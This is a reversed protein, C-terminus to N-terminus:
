EYNEGFKPITVKSNNEIINIVNIRESTFRSYYMTNNINEHGVMTSLIAFYSNINRHEKELKTICHVIYTHHLDHIRPLKDDNTYIGSEKCISHFYNLITVRTIPANTKTNKFIYDNLDYDRCYNNIFDNLLDVIFNNIPVIREKGGKSNKIIIYKDNIKIDELKILLTETIRTGCCYLINIIIKFINYNITDNTTNSHIKSFMMKIQSESFIYPIYKEGSYYQKSDIIFLNEFYNGLFLLFLKIIVARNKRSSYSETDKKTLWNEVIKKTFMNNGNINNNVLYRDFDRLIYKVYFVNHGISKQEELYKVIYESFISKYELKDFLM